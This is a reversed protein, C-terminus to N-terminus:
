TIGLKHSILNATETGGNNQATVFLGIKVATFFSQKTVKKLVPLLSDLGVAKVPQWALDENMSAFNSLNSM